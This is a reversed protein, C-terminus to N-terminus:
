GTQVPPWRHGADDLAALAALDNAIMVQALRGAAAVVNPWSPADLYEEDPVNPATVEREVSAYAAGLLRMLEVEEETRLSVGLFEDPVRADCFDDFLVHVVYTLDEFRDRALWVERQWPPNALSLVAPVVHTRYTPFKIGHDTVVLVTTASCSGQPRSEAM